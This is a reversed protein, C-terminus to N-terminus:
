PLTAALFAEVDSTLSVSGDSLELVRCRVARRLAAVDPPCDRLARAAVDDGGPPQGSAELLILGGVREPYWAALLLAQVCGLREGLLVPSRFGFQEVVGLTDAADLQYTTDARPSVSLVRWRPAVRLAIRDILNSPGLPDPLHILPGALGPWDRVRM